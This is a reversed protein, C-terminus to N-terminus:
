IVFMFGHWPVLYVDVRLKIVFSLCCVEDLCIQFRMM